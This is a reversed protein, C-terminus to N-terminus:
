KRYEKPSLGTHRKMVKSFYQCDRFGVLESIHAMSLDTTKILGIGKTLRYHNLYQIITEGVNEKFVTNAYNKSIGLYDAIEKLSLKEPYHTHIYQLIHPVIKEKSLAYSYTENCYNQSLLSYFIDLLAAKCKIQWYYDRKRFSEVVTEFAEKMKERERLKAHYPLQEGNSLCIVPRIREKDKAEHDDYDISQDSYYIFDLHIWIIYSEKNYIHLQSPTNPPIFLLSGKSINITKDNIIAKGGGNIVYLMEYDYLRRNKNWGESGQIGARRIFPNLDNNDIFLKKM